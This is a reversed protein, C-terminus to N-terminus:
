SGAGETSDIAPGIVRGASFQAALLVPVDVTETAGEVLEGLPVGALLDRCFNWEPPSLREVRASSAFREVVLYVPGSDLDIAAMGDEDQAIVARWIADVPFHSSVFSISPHASFRLSSADSRAAAALAIFELPTADPAHLARAVAWDLRAVDPLYPLADCPAFRELFSPFESGYANLDATTPLHASAFIQAAGAFFEGGVLRQVTPFALRLARVLTDQVTSRYVELREVAEGADDRVWWPVALLGAGTLQGHLQRQLELLAPM